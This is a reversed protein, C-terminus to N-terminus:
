NRILHKKIVECSTVDLEFYNSNEKSTDSREFIIIHADKSLIVHHWVSALINYAVNLKMSIIYTQDPIDGNRCVILDANGNTLIFVENTLNHREVQHFFKLDTAQSHRLMAVRWGDFSLVPTFKQDFSEGTEVLDQPLPNLNIKL